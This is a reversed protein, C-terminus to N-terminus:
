RLCVTIFAYRISRVSLAGATVVMRNVVTKFNMVPLMVIVIIVMTFKLIM